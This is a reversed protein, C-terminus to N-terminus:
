YLTDAFVRSVKKAHRLRLSRDPKLPGETDQTVGCGSDNTGLEARDTRHSANEKVFRAAHRQKDRPKFAGHCNWLYWSHPVRAACENAHRVVPFQAGSIRRCPIPALTSLANHLPAFEALPLPFRVRPRHPPPRLDEGLALRASGHGALEGGARAFSLHRYNSGWIRLPLPWVPIWDRGPPELAITDM